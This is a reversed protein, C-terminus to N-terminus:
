KLQFRTTTYISMETGPLISTPSGGISEIEMFNDPDNYVSYRVGKNSPSVNPPADSIDIYSQGEPLKGASRRVFLGRQHDCFKIWPVKKDLALQYRMQGDSFTRCLSM